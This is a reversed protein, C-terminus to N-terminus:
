NKELVKILQGFFLPLGLDLQKSRSRQGALKKAKEHALQLIEEKNKELFQCLM